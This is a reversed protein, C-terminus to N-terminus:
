LAARSQKGAFCRKILVTSGYAALVGLAAGFLVDTPFHVFLYMRSFGIVAAVAIAAIGALKDTKRHMFYISFAAAFAWGSHTSPCSYSGPRDILLAVSEDIHCPRARAILDKLVYQGVAFILAYSLIVCLGTKRTNKFLLLVAAVILWIQGYNGALDTLTLMFSDLWGCHLKQIAYLISFEISEM